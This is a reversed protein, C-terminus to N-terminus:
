RWAPIASVSPPVVKESVLAQSQSHGIDPNAQDDKIVLELSRGLYGGVANIEDVAMKVGNLMPLGFDASPGTFPGIVGIRIPAPQQASAQAALALGMLLFIFRHNSHPM